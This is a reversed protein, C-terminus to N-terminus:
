LVTRALILRAQTLEGHSPVCIQLASQLQYMTAKRLPLEYIKLCVHGEM